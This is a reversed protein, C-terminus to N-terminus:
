HTDGTAGFRVTDGELSDTDVVDAKSLVAELEGIRGELFAQKERAAHYEANESLDGLERADAIAQIVEPRDVSKLTKLEKQLAEYGPKTMPFTESM